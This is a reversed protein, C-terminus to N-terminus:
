DIWERTCRELYNFKIVGVKAHKSSDDSTGQGPIANARLGLLADRYSQSYSRSSAPSEARSSAQGRALKASRSQDTGDEKPSSSTSAAPFDSTEVGM